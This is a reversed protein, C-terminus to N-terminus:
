PWLRRDAAQAWRGALDKRALQERPLQLCLFPTILVLVTETGEVSLTAGTISPVQYKDTMETLGKLSSPGSGRPPACSGSVEKEEGVWLALTERIGDVDRCHRQSHELGISFM